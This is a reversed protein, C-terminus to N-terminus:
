PVPIFRTYWRSAGDSHEYRLWLSTDTLVTIKYENVGTYFGMLKNDSLTLTSDPTVNWTGPTTDSYPATYDFLNEYSGPFSGALSNHIYIDGNTVMDFQYGSLSFTYRNDYLGVGPKANATAHWWDPSNGEPPGVGFHMDSASDLHWTKSTLGGSLLLHLPNTFLSFDDAAINIQQTSEANGQSNIVSLTVNYNGAFPYKATDVLGSGTSGDGFDWVCNVNSNNASFIIINPNDVSTQFTFSASSDTLGYFCKGDDKTAKPDFNHAVPDTCGEKGCSVFLLSIISFYFIIDKM